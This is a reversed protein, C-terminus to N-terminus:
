DDPGEVSALVDDLRAAEATEEYLLPQDQRLWAPAEPDWPMRGDRDPWFLQLLPFADGQNFWRAYGILPRYWRPSALRPVCAYGELLVDSPVGDALPQGASNSRCLAAGLNLVQHATPHPLGFILLEPHGGAHHLGVTYSWGPADDEPLIHVIHCGHAGVDRLVRAEIADTAAPHDHEVGCITCTWAM